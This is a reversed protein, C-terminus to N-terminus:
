KEAVEMLYDKFEKRCDLYQSLMKAECSRIKAREFLDALLKETPFLNQYLQEKSM